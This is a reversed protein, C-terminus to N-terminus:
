DFFEKVPRFTKEFEDKPMWKENGDSDVVKYGPLRLANVGSPKSYAFEANVTQICIYKEM